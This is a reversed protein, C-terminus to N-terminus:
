LAVTLGLIDPGLISYLVGKILMNLIWVVM